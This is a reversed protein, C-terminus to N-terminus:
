SSSAAFNILDIFMQGIRTASNAEDVTENKILNAQAVLDSFLSM